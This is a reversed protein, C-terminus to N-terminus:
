CCSTLSQHHDPDRHQDPIKVSKKKCRRSISIAPNATEASIQPRRIGTTCQNIYRSIHPGYGLCVFCSVCFM